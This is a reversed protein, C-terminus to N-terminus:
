FAGDVLRVVPELILTPPGRRAGTSKEGLLACRKSDRNTHSKLLETELDLIQVATDRRDVAGSPCLVRRLYAGPPLGALHDAHDPFRAARRAGAGSPRPRGASPAQPGTM